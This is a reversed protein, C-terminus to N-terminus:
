FFSNWASGVTIYFATDEPGWAYDIGVQMGYERAIEYRFGVGKSSRWPADSFTTDQKLKNDGFAKGSGAFGILHWRDHVRWNLELEGVVVHQGQYRKGPIGRIQVSPYVFYPASSGVSQAEARIGLDFVPSLHLYKFLKGRYSM